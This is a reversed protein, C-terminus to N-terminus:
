VSKSSVSEQETQAYATPMGFQNRLYDYTIGQPRGTLPAVFTLFTAGTIKQQTTAGAATLYLWYLPTQGTAFILVDACYKKLWHSQQRVKLVKMMYDRYVGYPRGTLTNGVAAALRAQITDAWSMGAIYKENLAYSLSFLNMAMADVTWRYLRNSVMHGAAEQGVIKELKSILTM